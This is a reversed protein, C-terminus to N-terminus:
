VKVETICVEMTYDSTPKDGIAYVTVTGGVNETVLTLDQFTALQEVSPLLDVKSNSTVGPITVVQSYTDESGVWYSAKLMVSSYTPDFEGNALAEKIQRLTEVRGEEATVRKAEANVRGIEAAQRATEATSMADVLAKDDDSINLDDSNVVRKSVVM